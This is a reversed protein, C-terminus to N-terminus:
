RFGYSGDTVLKSKISTYRTVSLCVSVTVRRQKYSYRAYSV